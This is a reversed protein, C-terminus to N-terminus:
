HGSAVERFKDDMVRLTLPFAALVKQETSTEGMGYRAAFLEAFAEHRGESEVGGHRDPLYYRIKSRQEPSLNRMDRQYAEIFTESHSFRKLAVDLAHGFEHRVNSRGDNLRKYSKDSRVVYEGVTISGGRYTGPLSWYQCDPPFGKPYDGKAKMSLPRDMVTPYIYIKVDRAFVLNHFQVPLQRIASKIERVFEPSVAKVEGVGEGVVFFRDIDGVSSHSYTSHSPSSNSNSSQSSSSKGPEWISPHAEVSERHAAIM